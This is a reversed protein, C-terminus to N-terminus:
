AKITLLTMKQIETRFGDVYDDDPIYATIKATVIGTGLALTDFCVYWNGNRDLEMDEKEFHLVNNGRMIDVTFRDDAMSFGGAGIEVLFKLETGIYIGDQTFAEM